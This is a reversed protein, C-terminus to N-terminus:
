FYYNSHLKICSLLSKGTSKCSARDASLAEGPLCECHFSGVDNVCKHSCNNEGTLCEDIDIFHSVLPDIVRALM